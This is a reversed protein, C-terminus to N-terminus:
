VQFEFSYKVKFAADLALKSAFLVVTFHRGNQFLIYLTMFDPIDNLSDVGEGTM